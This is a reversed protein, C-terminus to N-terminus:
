RLARSHTVEAGGATVTAAGATDPNRPDLPLMGLAAEVVAIFAGADRCLDDAERRTVAGRLGALAAARKAAGAAFYAAWEALEPATRSLLTWASTPRRERRGTVSAPRARDALV